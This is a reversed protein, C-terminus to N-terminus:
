CLKAQFKIQKFFTCKVESKSRSFSYKTKIAVNKKYYSVIVVSCECLKFLTNTESGPDAVSCWSDVGDFLSSKVFQKNQNRAQNFRLWPSTVKSDRSAAAESDEIVTM